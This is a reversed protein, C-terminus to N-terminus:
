ITGCRKYIRRVLKVLTERGLPQSGCNKQVSDEIKKVLDIQNEPLGEIFCIYIAEAATIEWKSSNPKRGAPSKGDDLIAAKEINPREFVSIGDFLVEQDKENKIIRDNVYDLKIKSKGDYISRYKLYLDWLEPTIIEYKYIKYNFGVAYIENNIFKEIFVRENEADDDSNNKDKWVHKVYADYFTLATETM